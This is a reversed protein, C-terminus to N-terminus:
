PKAPTPDATPTPAACPFADKLAAVLLIGKSEHLREPHERLWKVLVRALQLVSAKDPICAGRLTQFAYERVKDPGALTVGTMAILALNVETLSAADQTAQLYGACWNFKGMQETFRDGSLSTLSAPSDAADVVVGCYDLLGNGDTPFNGKQQAFAPTVTCALLILALIKM